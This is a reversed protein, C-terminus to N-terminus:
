LKKSSNLVDPYRVIMICKLGNMASICIQSQM